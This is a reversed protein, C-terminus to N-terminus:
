ISVVAQRAVVSSSQKRTALGHDASHALALQEAAAIRVLRVNLLLRPPISERSAPLTGGDARQAFEVPLTHAAEHAVLISFVPPGHIFYVARDFCYM